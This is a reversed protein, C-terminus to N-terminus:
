LDKKLKDKFKLVKYKGFFTINLKKKRPSKKYSFHSKPSTPRALGISIGAHPSHSLPHVPIVTRGPHSPFPVREDSEEKKRPGRLFANINM